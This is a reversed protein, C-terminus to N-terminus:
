PRTLTFELHPTWLLFHTRRRESNDACHSAAVAIPVARNLVPGITEESNDACHNAAVVTPVARNLVPGITEEGSAGHWDLSTVTIEFLFSGNRVYRSAKGDGVSQRQRAQPQPM